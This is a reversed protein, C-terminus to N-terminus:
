LKQPKLHRKEVQRPIWNLSPFQLIRYSVVSTGCPSLVLYLWVERAEFPSVSTRFFPLIIPRLLNLYLKMKKAASINIIRELLMACINM